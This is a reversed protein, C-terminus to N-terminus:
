REGLHKTGGAADGGSPPRVAHARPQARDAGDREAAASDIPSSAIVSANSEGTATATITMADTTVTLSLPRAKVAIASIAPGNQLPRASPVWFVLWSNVVPM